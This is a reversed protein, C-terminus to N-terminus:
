YVMLDPPPIEETMLNFTRQYALFQEETMTGQIHQAKGFIHYDESLTRDELVIGSCQQVKRHRTLRGNFFEIQAMLANAAPDRYFAELVEANFQEPFSHVEDSENRSPLANLLIESLPEKTAAKVLTSKGVGINGCIGIRLNEM